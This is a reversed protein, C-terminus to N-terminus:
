QPSPQTPPAVPPSVPQVPAQQYYQPAYAPASPAYAPAPAVAAAPAATVRLRPNKFKALHEGVSGIIHGLLGPQVAVVTAAPAAAAAYAPAYAAPAYAAPAYAAPAPAYAAPAPAPAVAAPALFLQQTQVAQAPQLVSVSPAAPPPTLIQINAPQAPPAIYITPATQQLLISPSPTQLVIPAAAPQAVYTSAAPPSVALPVLTQPPAVPAVPPAVPVVPAPPPPYGAQSSPAAHQWHNTQALKADSKSTASAPRRLTKLWAVIQPATKADDLKALVQPGQAGRVYVRVELGPHPDLWRSSNSSGSESLPAIQASAALEATSPSRLFDGLLRSSVAITPRGTKQTTQLAQDLPLVTPYHTLSPESAASARSGALLLSALAAMLSATRMWIRSM